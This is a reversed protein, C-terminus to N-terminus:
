VLGVLPLLIRLGLWILVFGLLDFLVGARVMKLIPVLGSGYVIANPPTSIPLMFGYSAGLCAGIAPPIPSVGISTAVAMMVPMVMNASATNSTLESVVIGLGVAAGTLGWLSELQFMGVLGRGLVEALGTKFMLDGLSLGGGFLLITGWDIRAAQEWNLTFRRAPWDVPLMFLLAAALLAVIAEPLHIDFWNSAASDSGAVLAVMGPLIWLAVAVFFAVAANREGPALPGLRGREARVYQAAGQLELVEPPHLLYLLGFLGGFMVLVLPTAFAMWQLFGIKVGTQQAILGVGILNPPTGIITAIGGVSAGYAVMLMLGTAYGSRGVAAAGGVRGVASLIGIAIPYLMATTATNSMWMSLFVSLGGVGLLLRAPSTGIAKLSLIALAIRRDLGHVIMAEALLFSGIFLFIVPNAFPALAEKAPAVAAVVCLIPGVLATIPIPIPETIWYIVVALLIAALRHARPELGLPLLWVLLAAAPGLFLGVSRRGRDFREEAASLREAASDAAPRDGAPSGPASAPM